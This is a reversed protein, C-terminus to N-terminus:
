IPSLYQSLTETVDQDYRIRLVGYKNKKAWNDKRRDREKVMNHVRLADEDSMGGFNVPMFHHQGDYEIFLGKEPLFFDFRVPNRESIEPVAYEVEFKLGARQLFLAIANEGKSLSCKPCGKAQLHLRVEQKFVGHEKCTIQIKDRYAAKSPLNYQYRDGHIEEFKALLYERTSTRNIAKQENACNSCGKGALHQSGIQEFTGHSPCEILIKDSVKFEESLPYKYKKGHVKLARTLFEDFSILSANVLRKGAVIASCSPCGSKGSLHNAAIVQWAGHEPCIVVVNDHLNSYEVLSYDYTQSYHEKCRNIFTSKPLKRKERIKEYGCARCGAGRVLNEPTISFYGHVSCGVSIKTNMNKFIVKDLIFQTNPHAEKLRAEFESKSVRPELSEGARSKKPGTKACYPCGRKLSTHNTPRCKFPGHIKCVINVLKHATEYEVKSYDYRNGHVAKAKKIWTDNTLRRADAGKKRSCHPCGSGSLLNSIKASFIGHKKCKAEVTQRNNQYNNLNIAIDSGHIKSIRKKVEAISLRRSNHRKEMACSPCGRGNLFIGPAREFVGHNKCIIEVPSKTDHYIVKSYCYLQGYKKLAKAIFSEKDDKKLTNRHKLSCKPCAILRRNKGLLTDPTAQFIGHERCTIEVKERAHIYKTNSLDYASGFKDRFRGIFEM